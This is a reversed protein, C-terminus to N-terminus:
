KVRSRGLEDECIKIFHQGPTVRIRRGSRDKARTQIKEGVCREKVRALFSRTVELDVDAELLSMRVDRLAEDISEEDLERVGRLRETANKFGQTVTELM